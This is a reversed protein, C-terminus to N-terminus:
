IELRNLRNPLMIFKSKPLRDQDSEAGLNRQLRLDKLYDISRHHNQIPLASHSNKKPQNKYAKMREAYIRQKDEESLVNKQRIKQRQPMELSKKRNKLEDQNKKSAVPAYKSKTSDHYSRMKQHLTRKHEEKMEQNYQRDFEEEIVRETYTSNYKKYDYTDENNKQWEALERRRDENKEKNKEEKELQEQEIKRIDLPKYLDRLSALVQKKKELNESKISIRFKEDLEEYLPKQKLIKILQMDNERKEKRRQEQMQKAREKIEKAKEARDEKWKQQTQHNEEEQQQLRAEKNKVRAKMWNIKQDRQDEFQKIKSYNDEVKKLKDCMDSERELKIESYSKINKKSSYFNPTLKQESQSSYLSPHNIGLKRGVREFGDSTGLAQSNEEIIQIGRDLDKKALRHEKVHLLNLTEKLDSKNLQARWKHMLSTLDVEGAPAEYMKDEKGIRQQYHKSRTNVKDTIM